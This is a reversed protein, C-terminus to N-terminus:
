LPTLLAWKNFDEPDGGKELYEAYNKLGSLVQNAIKKFLKMQKKDNFETWINVETTKAKKPFLVYGISNMKSHQMNWTASKNEETETNIITISGLDTDLKSNKNELEIIGSVAPNWKPTIIGDTIIKYIKEPSSEIGIKRELRPM